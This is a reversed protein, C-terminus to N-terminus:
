SVLTVQRLYRCWKEAMDGAMFNRSTEEAVDLKERMSAEEIADALMRPSFEVPIICSAQSGIEGAIGVDTAVVPVRCSWAEVVSLGFSEYRSPSVLVDLGCMLDYVCSASVAQLYSMKKTILKAKEVMGNTSPGIFVARYDEPFLEIAEALALPRKEDALRGIFGIAKEGPQIQMRRRAQQRSADSFHHPQPREVGNCIITVRDLVDDRFAEAASRSVAVLHTAVRSGRDLFRRSWSSEHPGHSVLIIPIRAGKLMEDLDMVGWALIVDPKFQEILRQM